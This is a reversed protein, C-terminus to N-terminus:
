ADEEPPPEKGAELRKGSLIEDRKASVAEETKRQAKTRGFKVRNEAAKREKEARKGVKRFRNLNTIEAM